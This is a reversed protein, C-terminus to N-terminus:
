QILIVSCCLHTCTCIGEESALKRSIYVVVGRLPLNDEKEELQDLEERNITSEMKDNDNNDDAAAM